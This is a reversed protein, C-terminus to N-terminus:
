FPPSDFRGGGWAHYEDMGTFQKELADYHENWADEILKEHAVYYADM